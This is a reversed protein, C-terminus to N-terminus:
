QKVASHRSTAPDVVSRLAIFCTAALRFVVASLLRGRTLSSMPSTRPDGVCYLRAMLNLRDFEELSLEDERKMIRSRVRLATDQNM